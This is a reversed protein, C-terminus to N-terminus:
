ARKVATILLAIYFTPGPKGNTVAAIRTEASFARDCFRDIGAPRRRLVRQVLRLGWGLASRDATVLLPHMRRALFLLARPGCTLKRLSRVELGAGAITTRLGDATWRQFDYPCGHEEFVGHTTLLLQGGPRLLRRCEALYSGPSATHELVQTSLVLDYAASQAEVTSDSAITFDTRPVGAFDARHYVSGAFLSQYPAGGCGYDFVAQPRDPRAEDLALRLDSLHLYFPDGPRPELRQRNYEDNELVRLRDHTNDSFASM